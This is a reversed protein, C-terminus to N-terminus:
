CCIWYKRRMFSQVYKRLNSSEIWIDDRVLLMCLVNFLNEILERETATEPDRSRWRSLLVLFRDLIEQVYCSEILSVPNESLSDVGESDGALRFLLESCDLCVEDYSEVELHRLLAEFLGNKWYSRIMRDNMM